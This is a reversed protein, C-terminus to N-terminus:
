MSSSQINPNGEYKSPCKTLIQNAHFYGNKFKGTCVVSTCSEFNNPITGEYVVKMEIGNEDRMYFSFTNQIKNIEYNKERVWSGSAKITKTSTFVKQFNSEYHVNTQTFLYMLVALFIVVIIGGFIYKDKM